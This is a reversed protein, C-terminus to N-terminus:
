SADRREGSLKAEALALEREHRKRSREDRAAYEADLDRPVTAPNVLGLEKLQPGQHVPSSAAIPQVQAPVSAANAGEIFSRRLSGFFGGVGSTSASASSPSPTRPINTPPYALTASPSTNLSSAPSIASPATALPRLFSTSAESPSPLPSTSSSNPSSAPRDLSAGPPPLRLSDPPQKSGFIGRRSQFFSGIGTALTAAGSKAVDVGALLASGIPPGLEATSSLAPPGSGSHYSARKENFQNQLKSTERAIVTYAGMLSESGTSLGRTIAERTPALNEQLHLDHLGAALRIGVDELPNTKGEMPHREPRHLVYEAKQM